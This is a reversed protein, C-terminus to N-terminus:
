PVRRGALLRAKRICRLRGGCGGSGHASRSGSPRLVLHNHECSHQHALLSDDAMRRKEAVRVSVASFAIFFDDWGLKKFRDVRTILKLIVAIVAIGTFTWAIAHALAQRNESFDVNTDFKPVPM